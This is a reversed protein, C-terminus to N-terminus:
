KFQITIEDDPMFEHEGDHGQELMCSSGVTSGEPHAECLYECEKRCEKCISPGEEWCHTM